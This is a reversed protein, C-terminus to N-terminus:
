AGEARAMVEHVVQPNSRIFEAFENVNRFRKRGNGLDIVVSRPRITMMRKIRIYAEAVYWVLSVFQFPCPNTPILDWKYPYDVGYSLVKAPRWSTKTLHLALAAKNPFKRGCFPCRNERFANMEKGAVADAIAYLITYIKKGMKLNLLYKRALTYAMLRISTM